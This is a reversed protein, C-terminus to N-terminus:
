SANNHQCAPALELEEAASPIHQLGCEPQPLGAHIVCCAAAAAAAPAGSRRACLLSPCFFFVAGSYFKRRATHVCPASVTHEVFAM